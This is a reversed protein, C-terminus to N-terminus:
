GGTKPPRQFVGTCDAHGVRALDPRASLPPRATRALFPRDEFAPNARRTRLRAAELVVRRGQRASPGLLAALWLDLEGVVVDHLDGEVAVADLAMTSLAM